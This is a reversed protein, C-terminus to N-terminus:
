SDLAKLVLPDTRHIERGMYSKVNRVLQDWNRVKERLMGLIRIKTTMSMWPNRVVRYITMYSIAINPVALLYRLCEMAGSSWTLDDFLIADLLTTTEMNHRIRRNVSISELAAIFQKQGERTRLMDILRSAYNSDEQHNAVAANYELVEMPIKFGLNKEVTKLSVRNDHLDWFLPSGSPFTEVAVKNKPDGKSIIVYFTDGKHDMWSRKTTICWNSGTGLLKMDDSTKPRYIVMQPDDYVQDIGAYKKPDWMGRRVDRSSILRDAFARLEEPSNFAFVDTTRSKEEIKKVWPELVSPDVKFKKALKLSKSRVDEILYWLRM